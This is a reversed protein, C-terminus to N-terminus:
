PCGAAFAGLFALVDDIDLTGIPPALDAAPDTTAFATLFSLVDDIDLTGRPPALDAANCPPTFEYFLEVTTPGVDSQIVYFAADRSIYFETELLAVFPLTVTGNGVFAAIADQPFLVIGGSDLGANNVQQTVSSGNGSGNFASGNAFHRFAQAVGPAGGANGVQLTLDAVWNFGIINSTTAEGVFIVDAESTIRVGVAVLDGISPDLREFPLGIRREFPLGVGASVSEFDGSQGQDPQLGTSLTFPNIQITQVGVDAAAPSAVSLLGVLFTIACCRHM